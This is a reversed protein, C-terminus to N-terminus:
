VPVGATFLYTAVIAFGIVASIIIVRTWVRLRLSLDRTLDAPDIGAEKPNEGVLAKIIRFRAPNAPPELDQSIPAM